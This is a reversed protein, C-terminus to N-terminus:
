WQRLWHLAYFVDWSDIRVHWVNKHLYCPASENDKKPWKLLKRNWFWAAIYIINTLILEHFRQRHNLYPQHHSNSSQSCQLCSPCIYNLHLKRCDLEVNEWRQYFWLDLCMFLMFWSVHFVYFPTVLSVLTLFYSIWFLFNHCYELKPDTNEVLVGSIELWNKTLLKFEHIRLHEPCPRLMTGSSLQLGRNLVYDLSCYM